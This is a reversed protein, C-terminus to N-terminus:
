KIVFNGINKYTVTKLPAKTCANAPLTYQVKGTVSSGVFLGKTIKGTTTAQVPNKTQKIAFKAVTSTKGPGWTITFTGITGKSKPDPKSLTTCNAGTTSKPSTFKTTAKTVGGGTCKTITGAASLTGKVKAVSTFIPLPPNFTAKGAAAKCTTGGAAGAPSSALIGVPLMLAAAAIVGAIKRM